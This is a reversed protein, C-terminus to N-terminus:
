FARVEDVAARARPISQNLGDLQGELSKVNVKLSFINWKPILGDAVLRSSM